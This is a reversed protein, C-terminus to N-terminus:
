PGQFRNPESTEIAPKTEKPSKDKAPCTKCTETHYILDKRHAKNALKAYDLIYTEGTFVVSCRSDEALDIDCGFACVKRNTACQIVASIGDPQLTLHVKIRKKHSSSKSSGKQYPVPEIIRFDIYRKKAPASTKEEEAITSGPGAVELQRPAIGHETLWKKVSEARHVALNPDAALEVADVTPVEIRVKKIQPISKLTEAVATLIATSKEVIVEKNRVFKVHRSLGIRDYSLSTLGPCGNDKPNRAPAGAEDPCADNVDPIWDKDRDTLPCGTQKPDPFLGAAVQPCQDRDDEIGDRDTDRASVVVVKPTDKIPNKIPPHPIVEPPKATYLGGGIAVTGIVLVGIILGLWNWPAIPWQGSAPIAAGNLRAEEALSVALCLDDVSSFRDQPKKALGRLLVRRMQPTCNLKSLYAPIDERALQDIAGESLVFLLTMTLSYVDARLDASKPSKLLEPSAFLYTGFKSNTDTLKLSYNEESSLDFDSLFPRNMKDFLINAPKVDRHVFGLAYTNAYDLVHGVRLVAAVARDRDIRKNIIAQHLDGGEMYEMVFYIFGDEEEPDNLIPVIGPHDLNRMKKAGRVFRAYEVTSNNYQAHLVKIAVEKQTSQDIAKWVEAFGGKGLFSLLIFRGQGLQNGYELQRKPHLKKRIEEIKVDIEETSQKDRILTARQEYLSSLNERLLSREPINRQPPKQSKRPILSFKGSVQEAHWATLQNEIYELDICEFIIKAKNKREMSPSLFKNYIDRFRLLFTDFETDTLADWRSHLSAIRESQDSKAPRPPPTVDMDLKSALELVADISAAWVTDLKDTVKLVVGVVHDGVCVPSGSIGGWDEWTGQDISLQLARSPENERVAAVRGTLGFVKEPDFGPFGDSHWRDHMNPPVISQILVSLKAHTQSLRLIAIDARIDFGVANLEVEETGAILHYTAGQPSDKSWRGVGKEDVVGVVHFATVVADQGLLWCTGTQPEQKTGPVRVKLQYSIM